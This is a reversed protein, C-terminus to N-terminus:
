WTETTTIWVLIKMALLRGDKSLETPTAIKKAFLDLNLYNSSGKLVAFQRPYRLLPNLQEKGVKLVQNQLVTTPVSIVVKRARQRGVYSLPLLYGLTKGM